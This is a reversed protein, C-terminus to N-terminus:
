NKCIKEGYEIDAIKYLEFLENYYLKKVELMEIINLAYSRTSDLYEMIDGEGELLASKSLSILEQNLPLIENELLKFEDHLVGLKLISLKSYHEIESKMYDKKHTYAASLAFQEAKLKEKQAGLSDLPISIGFTYRKTDLEKEYLFEYGISSITSDHLKYLAHAANKKYEMVKLEGHEEIPKLIIEKSPQVLDNCEITDIDISDVLVQLSTLDALYEREYLAINQQLKVLDLKNFLLDKRSIEGLEYAKKFQTYRQSQESRFLM